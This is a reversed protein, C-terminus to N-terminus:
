DIYKTFDERTKMLRGKKVDELGDKVLQKAKKNKFLWKEHTPIVKKKPM